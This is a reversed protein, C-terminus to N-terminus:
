IISESISSKDDPNNRYVKIKYGDFRNLGDDTGFWIFGTRDQLLCNVFSNSLGQEVTLKKFKIEQASTENILILFFLVPVLTLIKRVKCKM